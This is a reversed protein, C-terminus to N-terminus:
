MVTMVYNHTSALLQLAKIGWSFEMREPLALNWGAESWYTKSFKWDANSILFDAAEISERSLFLSRILASSHPSLYQTHCYDSKALWHHLYAGNHCQIRTKLGSREGQKSIYHICLRSLESVMFNEALGIWLISIDTFPHTFTDSVNTITKLWAM